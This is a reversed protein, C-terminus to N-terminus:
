REKLNNNKYFAERKAKIYQKTKKIEKNYKDFNKPKKLEDIEIDIISSDVSDNVFSGVSGWFGM